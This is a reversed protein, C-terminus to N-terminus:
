PKRGSAGTRRTDPTAGPARAEGVTRVLGALVVYTAANAPIQWNFEVVNHIAQAALATLLAADLVDLSAARLAAHALVALLALVIALGIVGTDVLAQLYENHAQGLWEYAQYTRHYPSITGFANFGVGLLPFEPIPRVVDRWYGLRTQELSFGRRRYASELPGTDVVLLTALAVGVFVLTVRRAQRVWCGTVVFALPVALLGGRSGSVALGVVLTLAAVGWRLTRLAPPDALAVLWRRGRRRLAALAAIAADATLGVALPLAMTVYGAFHNHNVYPGFVAQDWSPRWLGYITGPTASRAQVLGIVTALLGTLTVTRIVRRRWASDTAERCVAVYLLTFAFLFALGRGTDLPNVSIPLWRTLAVLSQREHFHYTGPSVLQLLAPPLPLLQLLVLGIYAAVVPVGRQSWALRAADRGEGSLSLSGACAALVLLPIFAPEHVSGFALPAGVLLVLIVARALRRRAPLRAGHGVDGRM